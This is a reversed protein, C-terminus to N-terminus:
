KDFHKMLKVIYDRTWDREHFRQNDYKLLDIDMAIKGEDRLFKTNGCQTEIRTLISVLQEVGKETFGYVLFNLFKGNSKIEGIPETLLNESFQIENIEETLIEKVLKANQEYNFNTGVSLIIKHM